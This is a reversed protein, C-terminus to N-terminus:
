SLPAGVPIDCRHGPEGHAPNKMGSGNSIPTIQNPSNADPLIIPSQKVELPSTTEDDLPAGVAIECRHGPEGHPPNLRVGSTANSNVDANVPAPAMQIQEAPTATEELQNQEIPNDGCAMFFVALFTALLFNLFKM